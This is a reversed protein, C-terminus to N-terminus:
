ETAAMVSKSSSDYADTSESTNVHSGKRMQQTETRTVPRQAYSYASSCGVTGQPLGSPLCPFCQFPGRSLPLKGSPLESSTLSTLCILSLAGYHAQFLLVLCLVVLLTM